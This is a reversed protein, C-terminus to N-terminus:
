EHGAFGILLPDPEREAPVCALNDAVRNPGRVFDRAALQPLGNWRAIPTTPDVTVEPVGIM